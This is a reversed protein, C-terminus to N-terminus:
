NTLSAFMQSLIQKGSGSFGAVIGPGRVPHFLLLRRSAEAALIIRSQVIVIMFCLHTTTSLNRAISSVHPASTVAVFRVAESGQGNFHQRWCNLPPSFLSGEQWEFTRKEVGDFWVTTAGKGKLVYIMEEYMYREPRTQQGPPIEVVYADLSEQDALNIYAGLCQKREWPAVTVSMPDAWFGIHVPIGEERQWKAYTSESLALGATTSSGEEKM